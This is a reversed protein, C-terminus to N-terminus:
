RFRQRVATAVWLISSIHAISSHFCQLCPLDLCAHSHHCGACAWRLASPLHCQVRFPVAPGAPTGVAKKIVTQSLQPRAPATGCQIACTPENHASKASRACGRRSERLRSACVKRGPILCVDLYTVLPESGFCCFLLLLLLHLLRGRSSVGSLIRGAAGAWQRQPCARVRMCANRSSRPPSQSSQLLKSCSTRHQKTSSWDRKCGYSYLM